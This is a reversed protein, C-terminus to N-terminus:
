KKFQKQQEEDANIILIDVYGMEKLTQLPYAIVPKNYIPLLQKSITRTIPYLRTAKGGSLILGVKKHNM